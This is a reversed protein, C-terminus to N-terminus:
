LDRVPAEKAPTPRAFMNTKPQEKAKPSTIPQPQFRSQMQQQQKNRSPQQPDPQSLAKPLGSAVSEPIDVAM